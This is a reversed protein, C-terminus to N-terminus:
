AANPTKGAKAAHHTEHLKSFVQMAMDLLLIANIGDRFTAIFQGGHAHFHRNKSLDNGADQLPTYTARSQTMIVKLTEYAMLGGIELIYFDELTEEKFLQNIETGLRRIQQREDERKLSNVLVSDLCIYERALSEIEPYVTRCVNIYGGAQQTDLTQRIIERRAPTMVNEPLRDCLLGRFEEWQEKILREQEELSLSPFDNGFFHYLVPHPVWGTKNCEEIFDRQLGIEKFYETIQPAYNLRFNEMVELIPPTLAKHLEAWRDSWERSIAAFSEVAPIFQPKLAEIAAALNNVPQLLERMRDQFPELRLAAMSEQLERLHSQADQMGRMMDRRERENMLQDKEKEGYPATYCLFQRSIFNGPCGRGLLMSSRPRPGNGTEKADQPIITKPLFCGHCPRWYIAVKYLRVHDAPPLGNPRRAAGAALLPRPPLWSTVPCIVSTLPSQSDRFTM